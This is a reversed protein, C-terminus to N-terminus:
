LSGDLNDTDVPANGGCAMESNGFDECILYANVSRRDESLGIFKKSFEAGNPMSISIKHATIERWGTWGYEDGPACHEELSKELSIESSKTVVLDGQNFVFPTDTQHGHQDWLRETLTIQNEIHGDSTKVTGEGNSCYIQFFSAKGQNGMLSIFLISSFFKLM